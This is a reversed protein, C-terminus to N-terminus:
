AGAPYARHRHWALLGLVALIPPFVIWNVTTWGGADLLQGSSFSAIAVAGFMLFDNAGQARPQDEPRCCDAVMTTAGIFAFNWGLGLAVLSLWFHALSLGALNIAASSAILALGVAMVKERGFRAILRGTFFSPGFMALIHWQLGLAAEGISHGCGVMALPTATMIFSMLGYSVIGAAVAVLFRRQLVIESLPTASRVHREAPPPARLFSLPLLAVLLLAGQALFSGAFPAAAMDRTWIVTQPGIIAAALGGLMVWAIVRPKMDPSATDAAAFRFSQVFAGNFGAMFTALCFLAFNSQFVAIAATAGAMAGLAAGMFYATRRGLRRMLLAAPLTGSALGLQMVSVPLTALAKNAALAYGVVGGLSVVISPAASSLASAIALVIANRRALDNDHGAQM